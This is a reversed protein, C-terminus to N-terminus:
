IFNIDDNLGIDLSYSNNEKDICYLKMYKDGNNYILNTIRLQLENPLTITRYRHDFISALMSGKTIFSRGIITVRLLSIITM